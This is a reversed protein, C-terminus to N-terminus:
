NKYPVVLMNNRKMYMIGGKFNIVDYGLKKSLFDSIQKTRSGTRCVLVFPKKTDVKQNLKTLFDDVDYAGREDFFMITISNKIIGTRKWEPPTRIDVIPIGTDILEQSPYQHKVTALLSISLFISSLLIKIM